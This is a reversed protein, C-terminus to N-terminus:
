AGRRLAALLRRMDPPLPAEFALRRGHSPHAFALRFAHLATREILTSRRGYAVDGVLPHGEAALQVRIQNKRGTTLTVELLTADRFREVVRYSSVAKKGSRRGPVPHVKLSV